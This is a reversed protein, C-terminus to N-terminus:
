LLHAIEPIFLCKRVLWVHKTIYLIQPRQRWCQVAFWFLYKLLCLQDLFQTTVLKRMQIQIIKNKIKQTDLNWSPLAGELVWKSDKIHISLNKEWSKKKKKKACNIIMDTDAKWRDNNRWILSISYIPCLLIEHFDTLNICSSNCISKCWIVHIRVHAWCCIWLLCTVYSPSITTFVGCIHTWVDYHPSILLNGNSFIFHFSKAKGLILVEKPQCAYWTWSFYICVLTMNFKVYSCILPPIWLINKKNRSSFM